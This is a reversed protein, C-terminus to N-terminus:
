AASNARSGEGGESPEGPSAATLREVEAALQKLERRMEPLKM